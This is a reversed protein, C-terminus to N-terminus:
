LGERRPLYGRECERSGGQPRRLGRDVRAGETHIPARVRVNRVSRRVCESTEPARVRVNRPTKLTLTACASQRRVRPGFIGYEKPWGVGRAGRGGGRPGRLTLVGEYLGRPRCRRARGACPNAWRGHCLLSSRGMYHPIERGCRTPYGGTKPTPRAWRIHPSVDDAAGEREAPPGVEAPLGGDHDILRELRGGGWRDPRRPPFPPAGGSRGASDHGTASRCTCPQNSGHVM